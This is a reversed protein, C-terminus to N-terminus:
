AWGCADPLAAGADDVQYHPEGAFMTPNIFSEGRALRPRLVDGFTRM